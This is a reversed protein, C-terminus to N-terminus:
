NLIQTLIRAAVAAGETAWSAHWNRTIITHSNGAADIWRNANVFIAKNEQATLQM